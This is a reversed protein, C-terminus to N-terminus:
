GTHFRTPSDAKRYPPSKKSGRFRPIGVLMCLNADIARLRSFPFMSSCTWTNGKKIATILIVTPIVPNYLDTDNNYTPITKAEFRRLSPDSKVLKQEDLLRRGIDLIHSAVRGSQDPTTKLEGIRLIPLIMM